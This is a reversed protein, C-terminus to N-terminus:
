AVFHFPSFEEIADQQSGDPLVGSEGCCVTPSKAVRTLRKRKTAAQPLFPNPKRKRGSRSVSEESEIAPGQQRTGAATPSATIGSAKKKSSAKPSASLSSSKTGLKGEGPLYPSQTNCVQRLSGESRAVKQPVYDKLSDRIAVRQEELAKWTESSVREKAVPATLWKSNSPSKFAYVIAAYIIGRVVWGMAPGALIEREEYINRQKEENPKRGAPAEVAEALHEMQAASRAAQQPKAKGRARAAFGLTSLGRPKAKGKAKMKAAAAVSKGAELSKTTGQASQKAAAKAAAKAKAALKKARAKAALKPAANSCAALPEDVVYHGFGCGVLIAHLREQVRQGIDRWENLLKEAPSAKISTADIPEELPGAREIDATITRLGSIQTEYANYDSPTLQKCCIREHGKAHCLTCIKQHYQKKAAPANDAGETDDGKKKPMVFKYEWERPQPCQTSAHGPFSCNKCIAVPEQWRKVKQSGGGSKAHRRTADALMLSKAGENSAVQALWKTRWAPPWMREAAQLFTHKAQSMEKALKSQEHELRVLQMRRQAEENDARRKKAALNRQEELAARKREDQQAELDEQRM